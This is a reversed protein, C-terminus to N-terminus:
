ITYTLANITRTHEDENDWVDMKILDESFPKKYIIAAELQVVTHLTYQDKGQKSFLIELVEDDIQFTVSKMETFEVLQIDSVSGYVDSIYNAAMEITRDAKTQSVQRGKM